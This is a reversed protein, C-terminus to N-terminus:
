RPRGSCSQRPADITFSGLPAAGFPSLWGALDGRGQLSWGADELGTVSASLRAFLSPRQWETLAAVSPANLAPLTDYSIRTGSLDLEVRPSQAVAGAPALLAVIATARRLGGASRAPRLRRM